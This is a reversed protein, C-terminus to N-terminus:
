VDLGFLFRLQQILKKYEKKGYLEKKIFDELYEIKIGHLSLYQEAKKRTEEIKFPLHEVPIGDIYEKKPESHLVFLIRQVRKSTSKLAENSLKLFHEVIDKLEKEEYPPYTKVQCLFITDETEGIADIDTEDKGGKTLNLHFDLNVAGFSKHLLYIALLEGLLGKYSKVKEALRKRDKYVPDKEQLYDELLKHDISYKTLCIDDSHIELLTDLIRKDIDDERLISNFIVWESSNWMTGGVPIYLAYSYEHKESRKSKFEVLEPKDRLRLKYMQIAGLLVYFFLVTNNPYFYDEPIVRLPRKRFVISLENKDDIAEKSLLTSCPLTPYQKELSIKTRFLKTKFGFNPDGIISDIVYRGFKHLDEWDEIAKLRNSIKMTTEQNEIWKNYLIYLGVLYGKLYDKLFPAIKENRFVYNKAFNGSLSSAFIEGSYEPYLIFGEETPELRMKVYCYHTTRYIVVEKLRNMSDGLYQPHIRKSVLQYVNTIIKDIEKFTQDLTDRNWNSFRQKTLRKRIKNLRLIYDFEPYKQALIKAEEQTLWESYLIEWVNPDYYRMIREIDGMINIILLEILYLYGKYVEEAKCNWNKAYYSFVDTNCLTRLLLTDSYFEDFPDPFRELIEDNSDLLSGEM